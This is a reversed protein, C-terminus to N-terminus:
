PADNAILPKGDLMHIRAVWEAVPKGKLVHEQLIRECREPTVQGYWIGEPYVLLWPGGTCIRLCGAKTRMVPLNLESCRRKLYDWTAQGEIMPACDPGLCLFLHREAGEIGAAALGEKVTEYKAGMRFPTGSGDRDHLLRTMELPPSDNSKEEGGFGGSGFDLSIAQYFVPRYILCVPDSSWYADVKDGSCCVAKM